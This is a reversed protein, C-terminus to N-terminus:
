GIPDELLQELFERSDLFATNRLRAVFQDKLVMAASSLNVRIALRALQAMATERETGKAALHAVAGDASGHGARRIRGEQDTPPAFAELFRRNQAAVAAALGSDLAPLRRLFYHEAAWDMLGEAFPSKSAGGRAAVPVHCIFEHAFVRYLMAWAQPGIDSPLVDIRVVPGPATAAEIPYAPWTRAKRNVVTRGIIVEVPDPWDEGYAAQGLEDAWAATEAFPDDAAPPRELALLLDDVLNTEAPSQPTVRGISTRWNATAAAVAQADSGGVASVADQPLNGAISVAAPQLGDIQDGFDGLTSKCAALLVGTAFLAQRTAPDLDYTLNVTV